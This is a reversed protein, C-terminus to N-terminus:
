ATSVLEDAYKLANVRVSRTRSAGAAITGQKMSLAM